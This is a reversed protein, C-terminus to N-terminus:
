SSARTPSWRATPPATSAAGTTTLRPARPWRSRSRSCPTRSRPQPVIDERAARLLELDLGLERAELRLHGGAGCILRQQRAVRAGLRLEVSAAAIAPTVACAFHRM